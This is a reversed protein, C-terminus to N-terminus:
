SKNTIPYRWDKGFARKTVKIGMPAQKRKYEAKKLMKLVKKVAEEEFSQRCIDEESLGEEIYLRLIEDLVEYPPLTDQDTQNPRLEASPPKTFLREPFVPSISNRYRALRYVWTKYVDKLPAFGGAMDGYITTYGVACESKNSTSIVLYGERNSLYFLLNARIRAQLNEEAVHFDQYGLKEQVVSRYASFLSDISVEKLPVELNKAVERADEYSERSTFESPMFLLHVKDKGLADVALAAVLASDIGGSLGLIAAKFGNKYFYDRLGLVLARYVEEEAQPSPYVVPKFYPLERKDEFTIYKFFHEQPLNEDRLRSDLLRLRKIREVNISVTQVDEEFAKARLLLEGEPGIVLSRGDFVLEDQGGVLNVYVLYALNDEARAKLFAEKFEYKGAYYPSASINLLVSVGNSAYLRERYFPHWIDECISLGIRIGNIELILPANQAKFYRKEDFVSYNPLYAKTYVGLIKGRGIICLANYVDNERWPLGIILFSSLEKSLQALTQVAKKIDELFRSSLLLDEPPYGTLFLEPFVVLHSLPDAERWVKLVENLNGEIDGVCANKQAITINLYEM